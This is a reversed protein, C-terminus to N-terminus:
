SGGPRQRISKYGIQAGGTIFGKTVNGSSCFFCPDGFAVTASGGGINGGIYFGSWSYVPAPATVAKMPLDAASAAATMTLLVSAALYIKNM